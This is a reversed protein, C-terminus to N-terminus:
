LTEVRALTEEGGSSSATQAPTSSTTQSLSAPITIPPLKLFDSGRTLTWMCWALANVIGRLESSTTLCHGTCTAASMAATPSQRHSHSSTNARKPPAFPTMAIGDRVPYDSACGNETVYFSPLDDYTGVLHTLLSRVGDPTTCWGFSTINGMAPAPEVGVTGPRPHSGCM